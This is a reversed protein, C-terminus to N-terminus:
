NRPEPLKRSVFAPTHQHSSHFRRGVQRIARRTLVQPIDQLELRHPSNWNQRVPHKIKPPIVPMSSIQRDHTCQPLPFSMAQATTEQNPKHLSQSHQRLDQGTQSMHTPNNTSRRRHRQLLSSPRSCITPHGRSLGSHVAIQGCARLRTLLILLAQSTTIFCGRSLSFMELGSFSSDSNGRFQGAPEDLGPETCHSLCAISAVRVITILM